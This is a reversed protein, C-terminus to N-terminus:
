TTKVVSGSRMVRIWRVLMAAGGGALLVIGPEMPIYFRNDWDVSSIAILGCNLIITAAAFIKVPLNTTTRWGLVFSVYVFSIWLMLYINHSWSYYPRVFAVLYSVKLSATKLFYIPNDYIFSVIRGIPSKSTSFTKSPPPDITLSEHFLPRDKVVDAYTIINGKMYQETFNWHDLMRDASFVILITGILAIAILMPRKERLTGWHHAILFVFVGIIIVIGTPRSFFAFVLLIALRFIDKPRDQWRSLVYVVFCYISCAISETMTTINWHINDLWLLFIVGAMLGAMKSNFITVASKYLLITAVWSLICQFLLIPIIEGPFLLRTVTMILIPVTYFLHHVDQLEGHTIIYDAAELYAASDFFVRIGYHWFLLSHILVFLLSLMLIHNRASM